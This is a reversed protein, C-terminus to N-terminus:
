LRFFNCIKKIKDLLITQYNNVDKQVLNLTELVLNRHFSYQDNKIKKFYFLITILHHINIKLINNKKENKSLGILIKHKTSKSSLYSNNMM